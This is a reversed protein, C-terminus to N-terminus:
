DDLIKGSAAMTAMNRAMIFRPDQEAHRVEQLTIQYGCNCIMRAAAEIASKETQKEPNNESFTGGAKWRYDVSKIAQPSDSRIVIDKRAKAGNSYSGLQVLAQRIAEVDAIQQTHVWGKLLRGSFNRTDGPGFYVGVGGIADPQGSNICIGSVYVIAM